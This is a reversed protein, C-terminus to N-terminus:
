DVVRESMVARCDMEFEIDVVPPRCYHWTLGGRAAGRKIIADALFPHPDHVTYLQSATTKSWDAGLAALRREMEGMV